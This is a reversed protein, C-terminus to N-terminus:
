LQFIKSDVAAIRKGNHKKFPAQFVSDLWWYKSYHSLFSVSLHLSKHQMFLVLLIYFGSASRLKHCNCTTFTSRRWSFCTRAKCGAVGSCSFSCKRLNGYESIAFIQCFSRSSFSFHFSACKGGIKSSFFSRESSTRKSILCCRILVSSLPAFNGLYVALPCTHTLTEYTHCNCKDM